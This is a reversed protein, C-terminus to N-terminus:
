RRKVSLAVIPNNGEKKGSIEVRDGTRLDLCAVGEFNTSSTTVTPKGDVTMVLIPCVGGLAGITGTFTVNEPTPSPEPGPPNPDPSPGPAPPNPVPSPTGASEAVLDVAAAYIYAARERGDVEIQDGRNVEAFPRSKSGSRIISAANGRVTEGNVRLTFNDSSGSVDDVAGKVTRPSGVQDGASRVEVANAIMGTGATRASVNVSLGARLDGFMLPLGGQRITTAGDTQISQASVVFTNPPTVSQITGTLNQTSSGSTSVSSTGPALPSAGNNDGCGTSAVVALAIGILSLRCSM